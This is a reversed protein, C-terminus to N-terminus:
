AKEIRIQNTYDTITEGFEQKFRRSIHEKNLYFRDSIKQRHIDRWYNTQLFLAIEQMINLQRSQRSQIFIHQLRILDEVMANELATLDM